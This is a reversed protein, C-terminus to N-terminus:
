RRGVPPITGPPPMVPSKAPAQAVPPPAKAGDRESADAGSGRPSADSEGLMGGRAVLQAALVTQIVSAIQNTAGNAAGGGDNGSVTILKAQALADAIRPAIVPIMEIQRYRFYSEGGAAIAENVKEISEAQAAAVTRIRIAEAEAAAQAEITVREADARAQAIQTADLEAVRQVGMAEQRKAEAQAILAANSARTQELERQRDSIIREAEITAEKARRAQQAQVIDATAQAEAASMRRRAEAVESQVVKINLSNFILGLDTLERSCAKRIIVALPDDEDELTDVTGSMGSTTAPLQRPPASVVATGASTGATLVRPASRASFLQDHTLLNIARRASSSLLDTLTNVQDGEPKAFFRNAATKILQDSDGVSVIASALVRVKIPQPTGHEDLDATQDTIDLDVNIVKSSITTGTTLLPIEKSKGPGRYIVTGGALWSVLRITGAEVNRLFSAVIIPLVFLVGFVIAAVILILSSM